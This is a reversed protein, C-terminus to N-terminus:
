AENWTKRHIVALEETGGKATQVVLPAVPHKGIQFADGTTERMRNPMRRAAGAIDHDPTRVVVEAHPLM